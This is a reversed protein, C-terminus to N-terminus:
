GTADIIESGTAIRDIRVHYLVWVSAFSVGQISELLIMNLMLVLGSSASASAREIM